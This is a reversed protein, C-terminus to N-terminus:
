NDWLKELFNNRLFFFEDLKGGRPSELLGVVFTTGGKPPPAGPGCFGNKKVATNLKSTGRYKGRTSM